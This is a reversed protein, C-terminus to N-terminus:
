FLFFLLVSLFLLVSPISMLPFHECPTHMKMPGIGETRKEGDHYQKCPSRMLAVRQDHSSPVPAVLGLGLLLVLHPRKFRFRNPETTSAAASAPLVFTRIDSKM